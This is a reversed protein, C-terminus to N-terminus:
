SVPAASCVGAALKLIRRKLHARQGYQLASDLFPEVM